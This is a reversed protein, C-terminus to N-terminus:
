PWLGLVLGMVTFSVAHYGGDILWLGLPRREFLCTVGMGLAVWGFGAAFSAATAFGLTPEPGLFLALNLVMALQLVFAGGFVRAAGRGLEAEDLGALRAWRTGFLLPSYWLGGVAFTSVAAVLVALYDISSPGVIDESALSLAM